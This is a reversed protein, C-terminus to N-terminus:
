SVRIRLLHRKVDEYDTRAHLVRRNDFIMTEGDNLRFEEYEAKTEIFENFWELSEVMERTVRNDNKSHSLGRKISDYRYRIGKDDFIPAWITKGESSFAEPTRFPFHHITLDEMINNGNKLLNLQKKLSDVGIVRSMGGNCGAAKIAHLAFFPEPNDAFASDTHFQAEGTRESFTVERAPPQQRHRVDWVLECKDDHGTPNGIQGM